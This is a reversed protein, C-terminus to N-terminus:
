VIIINKFYNNKNNAKNNTYNIDLFPVPKNGSDLNGNLM